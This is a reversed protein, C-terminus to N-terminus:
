RLRKRDVFEGGGHASERGGARLGAGRVQRKRATSGPPKAAAGPTLTRMGNTEGTASGSNAKSRRIWPSVGAMRARRAALIAAVPGVPGARVCLRGAGKAGRRGTDRVRTGAERL